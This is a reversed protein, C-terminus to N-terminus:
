RQRRVVVLGETLEREGAGCRFEGHRQQSAGGPKVVGFEVVLPGVAPRLDVPVLVDLVPGVCVERRQGDPDIEFIDVVLHPRHAHDGAAVPAFQEVQEACVAM